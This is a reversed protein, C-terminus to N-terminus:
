RAPPSTAANMQPMPMRRRISAIRRSFPARRRSGHRAASGSSTTEASSCTSAPM